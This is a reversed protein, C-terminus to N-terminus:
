NENLLAETEETQEGNRCVIKTITKVHEPETHEPILEEAITVKETILKCSPPLKDIAYFHLKLNEVRGYYRLVGGETERKLIRVEPFAKKFQHVNRFSEM